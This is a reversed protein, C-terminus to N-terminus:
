RRGQKITQTLSNTLDALAVLRGLFAWLKETTLLGGRFEGIVTSIARERQELISGESAELAVAAMQARSSRAAARDAQEAESVM